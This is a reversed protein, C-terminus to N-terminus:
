GVVSALRDLAMSWGTDIGDAVRPMASRLEELREHVLTLTTAGDPAEALQLTLRSDYAPGNDRDPGVFGWQWVIKAAPVLEVLEAEFGGLEGDANSQWVRYHGGVREDIEVRTVRRDGAAMWRSVLDPDLWARYVRAPAAPITRQLRIADTSTTM